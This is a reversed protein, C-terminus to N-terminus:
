YEQQRDSIAGCDIFRKQPFLPAFCEQYVVILMLTVVGRARYQRLRWCGVGRHLSHTALWRQITSITTTIQHQVSLSNARRGILNSQLNLWKETMRHMQWLNKASIRWMKHSKLLELRTIRLIKHLKASAIRFSRLSMNSLWEASSSGWFLNFLLVKYRNSSCGYLAPKEM